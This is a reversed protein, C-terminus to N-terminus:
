FSSYFVTHINNESESTEINERASTDTTYNATHRVVVELLYTNNRGALVKRVNDQGLGLPLGGCDDVFVVFNRADATKVHPFNFEGLLTERLLQSQDEM